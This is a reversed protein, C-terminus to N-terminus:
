GPASPGSSASGSLADALRSIEDPALSEARRKLLEGVAALGDLLRGLGEEGRKKGRAGRGGGGTAGLLAGLARSEALLANRVSKRRHSFLARALASFVEEDAIPFPCPRPRLMVLASHVGPQPSFASPPVEELIECSARRYVEVSLRSYEPSGVQACMRDAFERQYMLVALEFDRELLRFTIPSSISYPLNSVVKNFPPLEVRLADAFVLEVNGPLGSLLPTFRRDREVAIVRGARAAIRRTLTGNGAGIELVVDGRGLRAHEVLREAVRGDVLLHQGLARTRRATM